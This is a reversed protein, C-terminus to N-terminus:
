SYTRSGVLLPCYPRHLETKPNLQRVQCCLLSAGRIICLRASSAREVGGGGFCGGETGSLWLPLENCYSGPRKKRRQLM